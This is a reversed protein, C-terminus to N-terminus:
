LPILDWWDCAVLAVFVKQSLIFYNVVRLTPSSVVQKEHSLTSVSRLLASVDDQLVPGAQACPNPASSNGPTCHRRVPVSSHLVQQGSPPQLHGQLRHALQVIQQMQMESKLSEGEQLQM